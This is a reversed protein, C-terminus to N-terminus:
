RESERKLTWFAFRNFGTETRKRKYTCSRHYRELFTWQSSEYRPILSWEFAIAISCNLLPTSLLLREYFVSSRWRFTTKLCSIWHLICSAGQQQLKSTRNVALKKWQLHHPARFLVRKWNTSLNIWDDFCGHFFQFCFFVYDTICDLLACSKLAFKPM